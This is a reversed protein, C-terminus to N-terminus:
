LAPILEKDVRKTNVDIFTDISDELAQSYKEELGQLYAVQEEYSMLLFSNYDVIDKEENGWDIGSNKITSWDDLTMGDKKLAGSAVEVAATITQKNAQAQIYDMSQQLSDITSFDTTVQAVFSLTGDKEAKDLFADIDEESDKGNAMLREKIADKINANEIIGAISTYTSLYNDAMNSLVDDTYKNMDAGSTKLLNRLETVYQNKYAEYDEIDTIEGISMGTEVQAQALEANIEAMQAIAEERAVEDAAIQSLLESVDSNNYLQRFWQYFESDDKVDETIGLDEANDRMYRFTDM